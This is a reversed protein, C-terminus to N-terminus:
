EESDAVLALEFVSAIRHPNSVDTREKTNLGSLSDIRKLDRGINNGKSFIDKQIVIPLNMLRHVFHNLQIMTKELPM